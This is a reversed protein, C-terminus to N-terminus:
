NLLKEIVRMKASRARPNSTIEEETATKPFPKIIKAKKQRSQEIEEATLPLSKPLKSAPDSALEKFTSKISRDELSHFSIIAMRGGQALVSFADKLLITLEDLESNVYIRLAQFVKTAPNKKSKKSYHVSKKIIDALQTTTNISNHARYNCIAQAIFHAKPEEGLERFIKKLSDFSENEIIDKATPIDLNQNMRMDLPGDKAFSFGRESVDIQPSSVGLDAIIGKVKGVLDNEEILAKLNSFNSQYIQLKNKKEILAFKNHLNTIAVPDRDIAIVRGSEGVKDLLLQTHGGGGATCDIAIDGEQLALSDVLEHALVTIHNFENM